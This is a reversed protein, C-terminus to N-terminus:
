GSTRGVYVEKGTVLNLYVDLGDEHRLFKLTEDVYESPAFVYTHSLSGEYKWNEPTIIKMLKSDAYRCAAVWSGTESLNIHGFELWNCSITLGGLQQAVAIDIAKDDEIFTLGRTELHEVFEKVDQPIMFGVRAIEDDACLTANPVNEVFAKWGGPYKEEISKRRVIVSIAEVLVAM